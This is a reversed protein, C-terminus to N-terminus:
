AHTPKPANEGEKKLTELVGHVAASWWQTSQFLKDSHARLARALEHLAAGAEVHVNVITTVIEGDFCDGRELQRRLWPVCKSRTHFCLQMKADLRLQQGYCWTYYVDKYKCAVLARAQAHYRPPVHELIHNWDADEEAHALEDVVMDDADTVDARTWDAIQLMPSAADAVLAGTEERAM